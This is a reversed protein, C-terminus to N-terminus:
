CFMQAGIGDLTHKTIELIDATSVLEQERNFRFLTHIFESIKHHIYLM